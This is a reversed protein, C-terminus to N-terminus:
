RPCLYGVDQVYRSRSQRIARGPARNLPRVGDGDYPPTDSRVYDGTLNIHDWGLPSLRRLRKADIDVDRARAFNMLPVISIM